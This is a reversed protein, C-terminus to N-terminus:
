EGFTLTVSRHEGTREIGPLLEGDADYVSAAIEKFADASVREKTEVRVLEPRHAKAWQLAKTADALKLSAPVSRFAVTGQLFTVSRRRNGAALIKRRCYDELQAGFLHELRQRDSAIEALRREAQKTVRDAEAKLNALRSLLWEAKADTDIVFPGDNGETQQAAGTTPQEITAQM